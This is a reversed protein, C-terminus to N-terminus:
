GGQGIKLESSRGWRLTLNFRLQGGETLNVPLTVSMGSPGALRESEEVYAPYLAHAGVATDFASGQAYALDIIETESIRDLLRADPNEPRLDPLLERLWDQLTARATCEQYFM